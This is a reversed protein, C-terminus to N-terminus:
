GFLNTEPTSAGFLNDLNPWPAGNSDDQNRMREGAAEANLKDNVYEFLAIPRYDQTVAGFVDPKNRQVPLPFGDRVWGPPHTITVNSRTLLASAAQNVLSTYDTM